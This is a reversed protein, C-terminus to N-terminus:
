VAPQKHWPPDAATTAVAEEFRDIYQLARKTRDKLAAALSWYPKGM